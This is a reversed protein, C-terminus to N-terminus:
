THGHSRIFHETGIICWKWFSGIFSDKYSMDFPNSTSLSKGYYGCGYVVQQWSEVRLTRFQYLYCCSNVSLTFRCRKILTAHRLGRTRIIHKWQCSILMLLHITQIINMYSATTYVSMLYNSQHLWIKHERRFTM